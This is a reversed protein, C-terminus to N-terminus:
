VVTDAANLFVQLDRYDVFGPRILVKQPGLREAMASIAAQYTASFFKGAIVLVSGPELSVMADILADLGKYPKCLGIFLFVHASEPLGLRQRAELRGITNPYTDIWNGHPILRLREDDIKFEARVIAAASPGHVFIRHAIRVIFWRAFRHVAAGKGGDHPYLNHATWVIRVGRARLLLLVVM